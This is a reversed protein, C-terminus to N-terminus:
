AAAGPNRRARRRVDDTLAGALERTEDTPETDLEELRHTLQTLRATIADSDDLDAHCRMAAQYAQEAYPDHGIATDLVALAQEPQDRLADALALHADLAQRRVAERYPEAWEYRTGDALPGRYAAVAQRLAAIRADGTATEATSLADRLRWLDVDLADRNLLYRHRPHTIYTASGGTRRLALRLAYVYTHIRNPAKSVTADPVLDEKMADITAGGGRAILYVLLEMAKARLPQEQDAGVITPLGLVQVAVVGPGDAADDTEGDDLEQDDDGASGSLAPVPTSPSEPIAGITPSDSAEAPPAASTVQGPTAAHEPEQAPADADNAAQDLDDAATSPPVLAVPTRPPEAPAPPQPLGTHSEALTPLLGAAEAATIVTLRGVDAPHSGHRSGEGDAATTTGDGAVVVTSGDPWAGLLVGHIDLRQGQSLLAAIRAREHPVTADALLLVPPLPEEYPDADRLQAVTDVEHGYVMRTRHLTQEELLELAEALDGTVTLRPTDPVNVAAAGLLTALTAAPLVVSSRGHPDDLGGAALAATLFGRAAAEAGAGTLGLGAPPWATLMPNGLAPLNLPPAPSQEPTDTEDPLDADTFGDEDLADEVDEAQDLLDDAADDDHLDHLRNDTEPVPTRLGRRVRTVVEPLPTLDPDDLRTHASPPRPTYRRRRLRWVVAAAAAIALALGLDVWSDGTLSVGPPSSRDSQSPATDPTASASPAATATGTARVSGTASPRASSPVDGAVGDDGPVGTPEATAPRSSPQATATPEASASPAPAQPTSPPSTPTATPPTTPTTTTAPPIFTRPKAGAPPAADDPLVLHWTPEIHDGGAMRHLRGNGDYRDQNLHYIEKWRHADGLWQQALDWLTDGRQVIVTYQAGGATVTLPGTRAALAFRPSDTSVGDLSAPSAAPLARPAADTGAAPRLDPPWAAVPAVAQGTQSGGATGAAYPTHAPTPAIVAVSAAAPGAALGAVLLAALAQMPSILRIRRAPQGRRAAALEVTLAHVFAAWVLWLAVALLGVVATDPFGGALIAAIQDWTTPLDDPLPWGIFTVLGAPIGAVVALLVLGSGTRVAIRGLRHM